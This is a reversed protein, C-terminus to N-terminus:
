LLRRPVSMTSRFVTLSLQEDGQEDAVGAAPTRRYGSIGRYQRRSSWRPTSHEAVDYTKAVYAIQIEFAFQSVVDTRAPQRSNSIPSQDSASLAM